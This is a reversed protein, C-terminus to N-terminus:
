SNENRKSKQQYKDTRAYLFCDFVKSRLLEFYDRNGRSMEIAIETLKSDLFEEFSGRSEKYDTERINTVLHPSFYESPGSSPIKLSRPGLRSSEKGTMRLLKKHFERGLFAATHIINVKEDISVCTRLAEILVKKVVESDLERLWYFSPVNNCLAFRALEGEQKRSLKLDSRKAYMRWIAERRPIFEKDKRSLAIWGAIEQEDTQPAVTFSMGKVPIADPADSIVFAKKEKTQKTEPDFVILEHDPPAEVVRAIKNLISNRYHDIRKNIIFELAGPDLTQNGGSRRVYVNGERLITKMEGSPFRFSAEKVVIHTKDITEPIFIIVFRKADRVIKKARIRSFPPYIYRNFKQLILNTDSLGRVTNEEIGKLKFTSDEIGFVIYGGHTNAFAVADITIGLWEKQSRLDFNEKYDVFLDEERYKLLLDIASKSLPDKSNIIDKINEM